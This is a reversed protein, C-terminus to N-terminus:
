NPPPLNEKLHTLIHWSAHIISQMCSLQFPLMAQVFVGSVLAKHLIAALVACPDVCAEQM